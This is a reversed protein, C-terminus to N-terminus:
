SGNREGLERALIYNWYKGGKVKTLWQEKSHRLGNLYYEKIIEGDMANMIIAPGWECHRKDDRFGHFNNYSDIINLDKKYWEKWNVEDCARQQKLTECKCAKKMKHKGNHPEEWIRINNQIKLLNM